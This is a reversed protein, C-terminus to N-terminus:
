SIMLRSSSSKFLSLSLIANQVVVEALYPLTEELFDTATDSGDGTDEDQAATLFDNYKPFIYHVPEQPWGFASTDIRTRPVFYPESRVPNAM